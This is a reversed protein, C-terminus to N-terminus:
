DALSWFPGIFGAATLLQQSADRPRPKWDPALRGEYWTKALSWLDAAPM